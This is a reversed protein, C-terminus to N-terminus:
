MLKNRFINARKLDGGFAESDILCVYSQYSHILGDPVRPFILWEIEGLRDNYRHALKQRRELISQLKKMQMVGLSGQIDTM